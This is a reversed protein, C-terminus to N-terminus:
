KDETKTKSAKSRAMKKYGSIQEIVIVRGVGLMALVMFVGTGNGLWPKVHPPVFRALVWYATAASLALLLWM